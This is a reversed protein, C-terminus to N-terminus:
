KRAGPRGIGFKPPPMGHCGQRGAPLRGRGGQRRRDDREQDGRRLARRDGSPDLHAAHAVEHVLTSLYEEFDSLLRKAIKIKGGVLTGDLAADGFDVINLRDEITGYGLDKAASEVLDLVTEAYKM